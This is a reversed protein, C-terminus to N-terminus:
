LFGVLTPIEASFKEDVAIFIFPREEVTLRDGFLKNEEFFAFDRSELNDAIPVLKALFNRRGFAFFIPGQINGQTPLKLVYQYFYKRPCQKYTSISSPSQVRKPMLFEQFEKKM